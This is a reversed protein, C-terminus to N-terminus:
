RGGRSACDARQAESEESPECPFMHEDVWRVSEPRRGGCLTLGSARRLSLPSHPGRSPPARPSRRSRPAAPSPRPSRRRAPSGSASERSCGRRAARGRAPGCGGRVGVAAVPERPLRVLDREASMMRATSPGSAVTRPSPASSISYRPADVGSSCTQSASRAFMRWTSSDTVRAATTALWSGSGTSPSASCGSAACTAVRSRAGAGDRRAGPESGASRPRGGSEGGLQRITAVVVMGLLRDAARADGLRRRAVLSVGLALEETRPSAGNTFVRARPRSTSSRATRRARAGRGPCPDAARDAPERRRADDRDPGRLRPPRDPRDDGGRLRARARPLDPRRAPARAARRDSQRHRRLEDRVRDAPHDYLDTPNGAQEVAGENMVVIQEAVDM